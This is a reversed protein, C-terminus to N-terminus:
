ILIDLPNRKLIKAPFEAVLGIPVLTEASCPSAEKRFITMQIEVWFDIFSKPQLGKSFNDAMLQSVIMEIILAFTVAMPISIKFVQELSNITQAVSWGQGVRLGKEDIFAQAASCKDTASASDIKLFVPASTTHALETQRLISSLDALSNM